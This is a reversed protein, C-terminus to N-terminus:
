GKIYKDIIKLLGSVELPKTLYAKAGAKIVKDIQDHMADASVVVVPIRRTQENGLLLKLVERGHIDPLNLDLLILDPKFEVAQLLAGEGTKTSVLHISPRQYLLIQEILEINSANDEIYLVTGKKPSLVRNSETFLNLKKLDELQNETRPLEIWFTSGEGYVSEVGLTGGMAEILKKVVALGLGTGEIGTKDAGIREFPTFLKPMDEALIGLGNDTISIRIVAEGSTKEPLMQSKMVVYGGARNYKVANNLLNMLVQKLSQRDAKVFLLNDTSALLEMKIQHEVALPRMVDIMEELVEKVKIPEISISLRGAEIRSIDLVENILSLLHKGSRLIHSVGKKQGPNLEGMELLQAFGLISNMPTRLEHSMRSLFESKAVNAKEAEQRAKRIEEEANKRDTIDVAVTLLCRESGLYIIDASLLFIRLDGNKLCKLVELERVPINANLKKLIEAYINKDVFFNLEDHTKGIIEERSYGLTQILANNVDVYKGDKFYSIEMLASSSQFAASFKQESLQIQSMDKSVGFIAPQGNWYGNKVRTEVPIKQGNKTVVPVPCFEQLGQLMETVIRGAEERRDAPHVMLVSKSELEAASYGLRNVVTNNIHIINGTNDLVWLFDDITNFFTEFNQRTQELLSETRYNNILGSLMSSWVKLINIEASTYDRKHTVSDLGVFGILSDEILMPIVILSQIGQPELIEREAQWTAPLDKISPIIINRHNTLEEMWMPLMACPVEQLNDIEPTVGENCWEYTNNMCGNSDIEFIYARDANLFNGIRSLALNLASDIQNITIGTLQPSLQLMENEFEQAWKRETIDQLTGYTGSIEGKDNMGLRAYVEIWRFGGDKTLYRIEHRCYDKERNILPAFLEMNRQRDDPHVYNLFLQGLSEEVSFGTIEEWAKNLFMWLGETDTQFIVETVNEVVTQYSQESAILAEDLRKREEIVRLLDNNSQALEETRQQIRIELNENLERIEQEAKKRQSIDQKVAVYNVIKGSEDSLPTISVAEWYFEGNKKKNIWESHWEKGTTITDWLDAYVAKDTKGSKLIGTSKGLVEAASYGTIETFVPNVYEIIGNLDTIVILIPSQEIVLSLKKIERENRKRNTIDRVFSLVKDAGMPVVRAEFYRKAQQIVLPYEYTVLKQNEVCKKINKLHLDATESDFINELESGSETVAALLSHKARDTAFSEIFQGDKDRLFIMDPMASMIANLREYQELLKSEADKLETIDVNVGKLLVLKDNEFVPVIFNNVWKVAGDPMLLRMEIKSESRTQMIETLVDDLLHKDDPHLAQMFHEAPNINKYSGLGMVRYMNESWKTEGTEMVMEWSGMKALEQAYNLALESHILDQEMQKRLTIDEKIAVYHTIKGAEDLIPAITSSEWYLEGTKKKNHFTGHWEHGTEITKWLLAYEDKPTEGSQLVRPNKGLLEDLSYGTTECAKPNAYEINGDINTIVISVPSQEVARSLKRLEAEARKRNEETEIAELANNINDVVGVLLETEESSFFGTVSSYLTLAGYNEGFQKLPLSISSRYNRQLAEDRWPIMDPDTAIDNSVVPKGERLCRGTPGNGEPSDTITIQRIKTLYGNENGDIIRPIVNKSESDVLGVWAMQFGGANISISCAKQLLSDKSKEEIIAQNINSVVSKLRNLKLVNEEALKRETIDHVTVLVGKQSDTEFKSGTVEVFLDSGDAHKLEFVIDKIPTNDKLISQFIANVNPYEGDPNFASIHSGIIEEPRRGFMPITSPSMYVIVGNEDIIIILDSTQEAISRFKTESERLATEAQIRETVDSILVHRAKRGNFEISQATIEVFRLEGNKWIHRWVGKSGKDNAAYNVDTLLIEIDEAPRIDKITMQLFEERSYGYQAIASQNVELIVLTELDYIWMPQPNNSFLLRYKEENKKLAEEAKKRHSIDRISGTIKVPNGTTDFVFVTTIAAPIVSGDKNQLSLEYDNLKGTKSLETYFADRANPDAYFQVLSQGILEERTFQGNSMSEIAPSIDLLIGELTAEYYADQVTNFISRYREESERLANEMQVRETIDHIISYLLTSEGFEMPGSYVEVDRVEGNALRHKFFFHKRDETKAKQMEAAIEKKSSTNIEDINMRCLEEKTWGYYYSAAPNAAKIEGTEPDVLLMTSTNGEFFTKYRLESQRLSEEALKREHIDILVGIGGVMKGGDFVPKTSSRVWCITGDKKYYRYELNSSDKDALNVLAGFLLPMDDPYMYTFFNQGTLEEPTYGLVKEIVPSVYKITGETNVEFLVDNIREVMNRYNEESKQLKIQAQKIETVDVLTGTGGTFKGEANYIAKTSFRLWHLDGNKASMEYENTIQEGQRINLLNQYLHPAKDGTFDLFSKGTMEEPQYGMQQIAPSVYKVIGREDIEYIIENINEVLNRYLEEAKRLTAETQKRQTVDRVVFLMNEPEGAANRIFEGNIELYIQRGDARVGLYEEAGPLENRIMKAIADSVKEHYQKDIFELISHSTFDYDGLGFLVNANPSYYIINGQLDTITITDPSANLISRYLQESRKLELEVHKKDTIDTVVGVGGMFTGNEFVAKTSLNAWRIDGSKTPIQYETHIEGKERLDALVNTTYEEDGGVFEIFNKGLVYDSTFGFTKEVVPSIYKLIGRSDYEYVIDNINEVLFKYNNETIVLQDAKSTKDILSAIRVAITLLLDREEPLFVPDPYSVDDSYCVVVRGTTMGNVVIDQSLTLRTSVFGPTTYVSDNITISVSAREPFQWAPPIIDVIQRFIEPQTLNPNNVLATLQNHCTLEKVRENLDFEIKKFRNNEEELKILADILEQRTKTHYDM